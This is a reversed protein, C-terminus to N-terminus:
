TRCNMLGNTSSSPMSLVMLFISIELPATTALYIQNKKYIVAKPSSKIYDFSLKSCEITSIDTPGQM